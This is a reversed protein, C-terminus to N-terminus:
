SSRKLHKRTKHLLLYCAIAIIAIATMLIAVEIYSLLESSEDQVTFLEPLLIVKFGNEKLYQMQERFNQVSIYTEKSAEDSLFHYTLVVVEDESANSLIEKFVDLSQNTIQWSCIRFRADPDTNKLSYVQPKAGRACLYGASKVYNVITDNWEGFPYVFTNVDFGLQTLADKSTVIEEYLQSSTLNIMHSHTKTHCAINMGYAQLEKLEEINMRSAFTGRDLGISETAIAFSAKLGHSKLIPFAVDYQNQWGDDFFLCVKREAEFEGAVHLRLSALGLVSIAMICLLVTLSILRRNGMRKWKM